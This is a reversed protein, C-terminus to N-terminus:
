VKIAFSQFNISDIRKESIAYFWNNIIDEIKNIFKYYWLVWVYEM